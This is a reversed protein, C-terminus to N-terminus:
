WIAMRANPHSPIQLPHDNTGDRNMTRITRVNGVDRHTYIIREGDPSWDPYNSRANDTLQILNSGDYNARYLDTGGYLKSILRVFLFEDRTPSPQPLFPNLSDISNIFTLNNDNLDLIAIGSQVQSPDHSHNAVNLILRDGSPMWSPYVFNCEDETNLLDKSTVKRLHRSMRDLIFVDFTECEENNYSLSVFAIQEGDPSYRAYQCYIMSDPTLKTTESGDYKIEYIQFDSLEYCLCEKDPSWDEVMAPNFTLQYSNTYTSDSIYLKHYISNFAITTRTPKPITAKNIEITPLDYDCSGLLTLLLLSAALPNIKRM